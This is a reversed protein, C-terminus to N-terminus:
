FWTDSPKMEREPLLGIQRYAGALSEMVSLCIGLAASFEKDGDVATAFYSAWSLSVQWFVTQEKKVYKRTLFTEPDFPEVWVPHSLYATWRIFGKRISRSDSGPENIARKLLKEMFAKRDTKLIVSAVRDTLHLCLLLIEINAVALLEDSRNEESVLMQIICPTECRRVECIIEYAIDVQSDLDPRKESFPWM